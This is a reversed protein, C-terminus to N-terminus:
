RLGKYGRANFCDVVKQRQADIMNRTRTLWEVTLEESFEIPVRGDKPHGFKWLRYPPKQESALLRGHAFADRIDVVQRDVKFKQEEEKLSSNFDDVLTGLFTYNTLGTETAETDGGKPFQIAREIPDMLFYRLVTELAQLNTVIAGVLQTHDKVEM